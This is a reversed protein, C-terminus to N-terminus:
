GVSRGYGEFQDLLREIWASVPDDADLLTSGCAVRLWQFMGFVIYDAFLPSSGGIFPQYGLTQRLPELAQLLRARGGERDVVDELSKGFRKERTTRYHAQDAPGLLAHIDTLAYVSAHPHLAAVAYREVFRAAHRGGEGGFLSPRDHYTHELYEAIAFSDTILRAGDRLAPVTKVAGNEIAPIETFRVPVARHDLGKHRLAMATKWCHPSFPRLPDAGVLEYHLLSM